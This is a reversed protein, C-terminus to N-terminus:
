IYQVPVELPNTTYQPNPQVYKCLFLPSTSIPRQTIPIPNYCLPSPSTIVFHDTMSVRVSPSYHPYTASNLELLQPTSDQLIQLPRILTLILIAYKVFNYNYNDLIVLIFYKQPSAEKEHFHILFMCLLYLTTM